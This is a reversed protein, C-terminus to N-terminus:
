FLALTGRTLVSDADAYEAIVSFHNKGEVLMPATAGPPRQRPWLDWLLRTQRIFESTEAAGVAMLLPADVLPPYAVPSLAHASADDLKLDSNYSFLTMPALDHVGSLAIGGHFPAREFGWTRWDTVYMMAALHGGASHGGIVLRSADAGHRTGERAIWAVARRCEDVIDAISVEPCLDYNVSAVAIGHAIFPAAVFAVDSKDRARWYGGHFFAYTGRVPGAPLFLDLTEKPGAGYRLDRRVDTGAYVAASLRATEELWYPHDPCAGRNDYGREVFERTYVSM